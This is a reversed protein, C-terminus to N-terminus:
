DALLIMARLSFLVRNIKKYVTPTGKVRCNFQSRVTGIFVTCQYKKLWQPPCADTIKAAKTDWGNQVRQLKL